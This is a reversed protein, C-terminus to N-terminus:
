CDRSARSILASDGAVRARCSVGGMGRTTALPVARGFRTLPESGVHGVAWGM